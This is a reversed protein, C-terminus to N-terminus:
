DQNCAEQQLNFRPHVPFLIVNRYDLQKDLDYKTHLILKEKQKSGMTQTCCHKLLIFNSGTEYSSKIDSDPDSENELERIQTEMTAFQKKTKNFVKKM